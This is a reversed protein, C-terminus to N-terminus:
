KNDTQTEWKKKLSAQIQTNSRSRTWSVVPFYHAKLVGEQIRTRDMM